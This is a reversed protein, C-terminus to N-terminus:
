ENMATNAEIGGFDSEIDLLLKEAEGKSTISEPVSEQIVPADSKVESSRGRVRAETGVRENTNTRTVQTSREGFSNHSAYQLALSIGLVFVIVVGGLLIKQNRTM